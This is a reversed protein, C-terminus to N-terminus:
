PQQRQGSLLGMAAGGAMVAFADLFGSLLMPVAPLKSWGATILHDGLFVALGLAIGVTAGHKMGLQGTSVRPLLWALVATVVAYGAMLPLFALGDADTRIYPGFMPSVFPRMAIAIVTAAVFMAVFGVPGALLRRNM